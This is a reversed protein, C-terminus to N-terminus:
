FISYKLSLGVGIRNNYFEGVDAALSVGITYKKNAPLSHLLEFFLSHNVEKLESLPILVGIVFRDSPYREIIQDSYIGYNRSVTYKITYDLFSSINGKVGFNHAIVINNIIPQDESGDSTILSNGIVRGEYSWGERYTWHNYYNSTGRPEFKYSDQRKTNIHEYLISSILIGKKLKVSATWIGDWGNRFKKSGRDELYFLRYTSIHVPKFDLEIGFHYGAVSNGIANLQDGTPANESSAGLAFVTEFYSRLDRPFNQTDTEGAWQVNHVIGGVAEIFRYKLNLYFYKQHLWVNNVEGNDSLWGHSIFAKYNMIGWLGPVPLFGDTYFAVKPIPTANRSLIFSGTSLPDEKEALPDLFRGATLKFGRYRTDLYLRNFYVSSHSSVRVVPMASFTVDLREKSVLRNIYNARLFSNASTQDVVGYKQSHLWFPLDENIGAPNIYTEFGVELTEGPVIDQTSGKLSLILIWAITVILRLGLKENFPEHPFSKM